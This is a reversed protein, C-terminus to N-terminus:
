EGSLFCVHMGLLCATERGGIKEGKFSGDPYGSILGKESLKNVAEYAWHSKPVDSFPNAYTVSSLLLFAIFLSLIRKM